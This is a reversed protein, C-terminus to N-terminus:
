KEVFFFAWMGKDLEQRHLENLERVRNAYFDDKAVMQEELFRCKTLMSDLNTQTEDLITKTTEYSARLAPM